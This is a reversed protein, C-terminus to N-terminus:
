GQRWAAPTTGTWRRFQAAFKGPNAYGVRWAIEGVPLTGARLMQKAREIRRAVLYAHPPLGTAARFSRAFHFRSMGAAAALADLSVNEALHAELHDIARALRRDVAPAPSGDSAVRVIRAALALTLTERYLRDDEDAGHLAVVLQQVLADLGGSVAAFDLRAIGSETFLGPEITVNLFDNPEDWRCWGEIGAPFIWGHGPFLPLPRRRDSGYAAHHSALPALVLGVTVRDFDFAGEGPGSRTFRSAGGSWTAVGPRLTERLSAAEPLM